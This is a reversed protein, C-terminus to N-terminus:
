KHSHQTKMVTLAKELQQPHPGSELQPTHAEQQQPKEQHLAWSRPVHAWCSHGMPKTAKHCTPDEQVLPRVWTGANALPNKLVPGSHFGLQQNRSSQLRCYQKHYKHVNSSIRKMKKQREIQSKNRKQNKCWQHMWYFFFFFNLVNLSIKESLICVM